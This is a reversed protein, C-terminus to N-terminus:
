FLCLTVSPSAEKETTATEQKYFTGLKGGIKLYKCKCMHRSVRQKHWHARIVCKCVVMRKQEGQHSRM